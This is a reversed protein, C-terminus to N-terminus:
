ISSFSTGTVRDLIPVRHHVIQFLFYVFGAYGQSYVGFLKPLVFECRQYIIERFMKESKLAVNKVWDFHVLFLVSCLGSKQASICCRM